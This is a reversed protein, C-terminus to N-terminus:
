MGQPIQLEFDRVNLVLWVPEEPRMRLFADANQLFKAACLVARQRAKGDMTVKAPLVQDKRPLAKASDDIEAVATRVRGYAIDGYRQVIRSRTKDESGMPLQVGNIGRASWAIGCSGISTEFIAFCYGTM